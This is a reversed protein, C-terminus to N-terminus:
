APNPPIFLNMAMAGEVKRELQGADHLLKLEDYGGIYEEGIFIQPTTARGTMEALRERLQDDHTLDIDEHQIGARTLLEKAAASYACGQKGFLRVSRM